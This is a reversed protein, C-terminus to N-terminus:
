RDVVRFGAYVYPYEPRFWNRFSRRLLRAATRPSGGKLVYHQGDFFDASYGPYFPSPEFGPLPGFVTSTWEWGNGLMQEAGFASRGAPTGDVRVPDWGNFDFHGLGLAPPDSGWPYQREEGNATGFAARHFEAETPLRKGVWAAYASAQRQTVWVPANLPLPYEGFMGRWHWERERQVWFHPPPGGAEVFRRYELNTVKFRSIRFGPVKCSTQEFENDWGFGGNRTRGLTAIGTPIDLMDNSLPRSPRFPPVPGPLKDAYSLEHMLYAITEAHM